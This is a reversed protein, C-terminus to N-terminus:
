RLRAVTREIVVAGVTCVLVSAIGVAIGFGLWSTVVGPVRVIFESAAAALLGVYSWMMFRAHVERAVPGGRRVAVWGAALSLLSIVAFAHFMNVRGTLDYIALATGNLVVMALAYARGSWRHRPTGKRMLAVAGGVLLALYGSALHAMGLPDAAM